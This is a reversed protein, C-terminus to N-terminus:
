EEKKSKLYRREAGEADTERDGELDDLLRKVNLTDFSELLTSNWVSVNTAGLILEAAAMRTGMDGLEKYRNFDKTTLGLKSLERGGEEMLVKGELPFGEPDGTLLPGLFQATQWVNGAYRTPEFIDNNGIKSYTRFNGYKDEKVKLFERAGPISKVFALEATGLKRGYRPDKPPRLGAQVRLYDGIVSQRLPFLQNIAADLLIKDRQSGNMSIEPSLGATAQGGILLGLTAYTDMAQQMPLISGHSIAFTTANSGEYRFEKQMDYSLAGKNSVIKNLMSDYPRYILPRTEIPPEFEKIQPEVRQDFDSVDKALQDLGRKMARARKYTDAKVMKNVFWAAAGNDVSMLHYASNLMANKKYVYFASWEALTQAEFPSISLTYDYITRNMAKTADLESMGQNFRLDLWLMEKQNRTAQAMQNRLIEWYADRLQKGTAGPSSFSMADLIDPNRAIAENLARTTDRSIFNDHAGARRAKRAEVAPNMEVKVGKSNFYTKTENVGTKMDDLVQNYRVGFVSPGPVFSTPPTEVMRPGANPGEESAFRALNSPTYGSFDTATAAKRAVDQMGDGIVPVWGPLGLTSLQFAKRYGVQMTMSDFDGQANLLFFKGARDGVPGFLVLSRWFRLFRPLARMASSAFKNRKAKDQVNVTLLKINGELSNSFDSLQLKPTIRPNGLEDFSNLSFKVFRDRTLDLGANILRGTQAVEDIGVDGILSFGYRMYPDVLDLPSLEPSLRTIDALPVELKVGTGDTLIAIKDDTVDLLEFTKPAVIDQELQATAFAPGRTRGESVDFPTGGEKVPREKGKGPVAKNAIVRRFPEVEARLAVSDGPEITERPPVIRKGWDEPSAGGIHSEVARMQRIGVNPGALNGINVAFDAEAAGGVINKLMLQFTRGSMEYLGLPDEASNLRKGTTGVGNKTVIRVVNNYLEEFREDPREINRIRQGNTLGDDGEKALWLGFDVVSKKADPIRDLPIDDSVVSYVFGYLSDSQEIFAATYDDEKALVDGKNKRFPGKVQFTRGVDEWGELAENLISDTPDLYGQNGELRLQQRKALNAAKPVAGEVEGVPLVVREQSGIYQLINARTRATPGYATVIVSIDGFRISAERSVQNATEQMMETFRPGLVGVRTTTMGSLNIADAIETMSIGLIFDADEWLNEATESWTWHPFEDRLRKWAQHRNVIGTMRLDGARAHALYAMTLLEGGKGGTAVLESFLDSDKTATKLVAAFAEPDSDRLEKTTEGKTLLEDLAKRNKKDGLVEAGAAFAELVERLVNASNVQGDWLGPLDGGGGEEARQLITEAINLAEQQQELMDVTALHEDQAAKVQARAAEMIGEFAEDTDGGQRAIDELSRIAEDSIRWNEKRLLDRLEDLKAQQANTAESLEKRVAAGPTAEKGEKIAQEILKNLQTRLEKAAKRVARQSGGARAVAAKEEAVLMNVGKKKLFALQDRPDTFLSLQNAVEPAGEALREMQISLSLEGTLTDIVHQLATVEATIGEVTTRNKELDHTVTAVAAVARESEEVAGELKVINEALAAAAKDSKDQVQKLKSAEAEILSVANKAGKGNLRQAAAPAAFRMVIGMAGTRDAQVAADLAEAMELPSEVSRSIRALEQSAKAIRSGFSVVKSLRTAGYGFLALSGGSAAALGTVFADPELLMVAARPLIDMMTAIAPSSEYKGPHNLKAGVLFMNGAPDQNSALAAALRRPDNAIAQREREVWDARSLGEYKDPDEGNNRARFEKYAQWQAAHYWTSPAIRMLDDLARTKKYELYPVTLEGRGAAESLMWELGGQERVEQQFAEGRRKFVPNLEPAETIQGSMPAAGSSLALFERIYKNPDEILMRDSRDPDPLAGMGMFTNGKLIDVLSGSKRNYLLNGQFSALLRQRDEQLAEFAATDTNKTIEVKFDESNTFGEPSVGMFPEGLNYAKQADAYLQSLTRGGRTIRTHYSLLATDIVSMNISAAGSGQHQLPNQMLPIFATFVSSSQEPDPEYLNNPVLARKSANAEDAGLRGGIKEDIWARNFEDDRLGQNLREFVDQNDGIQVNATERGRGQPLSAMMDIDLQTNTYPAAVSERTEVDYGFKLGVAPTEAARRQLDENNEKYRIADTLYNLKLDESDAYKGSAIGEYAPHWAQEILDPDIDPNEAQVQARVSNLERLLADPNKQAAAKLPQDFETVRGSLNYSAEFGRHMAEIADAYPDQRPGVFDPLPPPEPPKPSADITGSERILGMEDKEAM